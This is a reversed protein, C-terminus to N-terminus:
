TIREAVASGVLEVNYLYTRQQHDKEPEAFSSGRSQPLQGRPANGTGSVAASCWVKATPFQPWLFREIWNRLDAAQM